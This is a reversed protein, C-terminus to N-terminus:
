MSCCTLVGSLVSGRVLRFHPPSLDGMSSWGEIDNWGQVRTVETKTAREPWRSLHFLM